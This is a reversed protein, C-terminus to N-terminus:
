EPSQLWGYQAADLQLAASKEGSLRQQLWPKIHVLLNPSAYILPLGTLISDGANNLQVLHEPRGPTARIVLVDWDVVVGHRQQWAIEDALAM